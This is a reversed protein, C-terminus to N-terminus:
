EKGQAAARARVTTPADVSKCVGGTVGTDGTVESGSPSVWQPWTDGAAGASRACIVPLGFV